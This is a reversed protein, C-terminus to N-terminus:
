YLILYQLPFWFCSTFKFANGYFSCFFLSSLPNFIFVTIQLVSELLGILVYNSDTVCHPASSMDSSIIPLSNGSEIHLM